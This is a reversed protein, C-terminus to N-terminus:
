CWLTQQMGRCRDRMFNDLMTDATRYLDMALLNNCQNAAAIAAQIFFFIEDLVKMGETRRNQDCPNLDLKLFANGFKRELLTTRIFTRYINYKIPPAISQRISWIGDPLDVLLSVDDVCTINLTNSNFINLSGPTFAVTAKMFSPPTIEYTPTIIQFNPPYFSLDAVGLTLVNHTDVVTFDLRASIEPYPM